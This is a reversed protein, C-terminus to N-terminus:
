ATSNKVVQCTCDQGQFFIFYFFFLFLFLFYFLLCSSHVAQSSYCSFTSIVVAYLQVQTAPAPGRGLRSHLARAHFSSPGIRALIELLCPVPAWLDHFSAWNAPEILRDLSVRKSAPTKNDNLIGVTEGIVKWRVGHKSFMRTVTTIAGTM